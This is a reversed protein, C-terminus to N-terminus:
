QSKFKPFIRPTQTISNATFGVQMVANGTMTMHVYQNTQIFVPQKGVLAPISQNM